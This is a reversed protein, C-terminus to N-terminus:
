IVESLKEIFTFYHSDIDDIHLSSFIEEKIKDTIIKIEEKASIGRAKLWQALAHNKGKSSNLDDTTIEDVINTESQIIKMAHNKYTEAKIFDEGTIAETESHIQNYCKWEGHLKLESFKEQEKKAAEDNDSIVLCQRGTLEIIPTIHKVSVVGKSHALGIDNFKNKISKKLKESKIATQFLKKDRWGEFIINMEKLSRFVSYGIANYLVEEDMYDSENTKLAITKEKEKKIRYHKDIVKEDIMFPSHTSYLVYNDKSIKSLEDRLFKAGYPHLSIEPEDVILLANRLSKNRVKISIMLLFTVFRQFGDSRQELGYTNYVDKISSVIDDGDLVLEFEVDDYEAWITNFHETTKKSVRTLLNKVGNTRTSEEEIAKKINPYEALDFMHKLPKCISPNEVFDSLNIRNPLLNEKEFRWYVTEPLYKNFIELIDAKLIKNLDSLKFSSLYEEPIEVDLNTLDIIDTPKFNVAGKDTLTVEFSNPCQMSPVKINENVKYEHPNNFAEYRFYKEKKLLDVIYTCKGKMTCLDSLKIFEDDKQLIIPDDQTTIIKEKLKKALEARQSDNFIFSFAVYAETKPPEEFSEQRVDDNSSDIDSSLLSAAKLINTKGAENIGVLVRCNHYFDIELDEISRFNVIKIKELKM